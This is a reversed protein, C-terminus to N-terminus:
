AGAPGAIGRVVQRCTEALARHGGPPVGFRRAAADLKHWRYGSRERMGAFEAYRRM